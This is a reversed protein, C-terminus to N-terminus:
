SLHCNGIRKYGKNADKISISLRFPNEFLIIARDSVAPLKLRRQLTKLYFFRLVAADDVVSILLDGEFQRSLM